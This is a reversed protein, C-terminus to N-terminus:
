QNIGSYIAILISFATCRPLFNSLRTHSFIISKRIDAATHISIAYELCYNRPNWNLTATISKKMRICKTASSSLLFYCHSIDTSIELSNTESQTGTINEIICMSVEIESLVEHTVM